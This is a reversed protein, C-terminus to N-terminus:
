HRETVDHRDTSQQQGQGGEHEVQRPRPQMFCQLQIFALRAREGSFTASFLYRVNQEGAGERQGAGEQRQKVDVKRSSHPDHAAACQIQPIEVHIARKIHEDDQRQQHKRQEIYPESHPKDIFPPPQALLVDAKWIESNVRNEANASIMM